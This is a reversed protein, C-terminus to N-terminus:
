RPRSGLAIYPGLPRGGIVHIHAHSQSQMGDYGFNSLIRFGGPCHREGLDAAIEGMRALLPGGRWLETQSMHTKPAILLMVPAWTLLNNFAIVADDEYQVAAPEDGSAIACFVCGHEPAATPNAPANAPNPANM